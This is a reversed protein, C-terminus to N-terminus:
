DEWHSMRHWVREWVNRQKKPKEPDAPVAQPIVPPAPIVTPPVAPAPIVVIPKTPAADVKDAVSQLADTTDDLKTSIIQQTAKIEKETSATTQDASKKIAVRADTLQRDLRTVLQGGTENLSQLRNTADNASSQLASRLATVQATFEAHLSRVQEIELFRGRIDVAMWFLFVTLVANILYHRVSHRLPLM